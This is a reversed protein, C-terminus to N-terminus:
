NTKLDEPTWEMLEEDSESYEHLKAKLALSTKRANHACAVRDNTNKKSIDL